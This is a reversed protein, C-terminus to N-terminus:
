SHQLREFAIDERRFTANAGLYHLFSREGDGHVLVMTAATAAKPDRTVGEADIGASEFCRILFDGFGDAGVKGIIATEVGLRALGIGTNAACGGPHLEIRDVLELKGREPFREIPKGVVDAVVIGVCTVDPM